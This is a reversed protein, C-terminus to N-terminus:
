PARALDAPALQALVGAIEAQHRDGTAAARMGIALVGRGSPAVFFIADLRSPTRGLTAEGEWAVAPRGHLQIWRPRGRWRVDHSVRALQAEVCPRARRLDTEDVVRIVMGAQGTDEALAILDGAVAGDWGAPIAVSVEANESTLVEARATSAILLTVFVVHRM